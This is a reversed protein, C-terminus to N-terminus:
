KTGRMIIVVVSILDGTSDSVDKRSEEGYGPELKLEL